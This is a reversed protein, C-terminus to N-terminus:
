SCQGGRSKEHPSCSCMKYFYDGIVLLYKSGVTSTPLPGMVGIAIRELPAGVNNQWMVHVTCYCSCYLIMFLVIVHVTCYCSCYWSMFLVIAHLTCYVHLTCYSILVNVHVTCYRSCYLLMFLVNVHVTCNCTCYLLCSCYL